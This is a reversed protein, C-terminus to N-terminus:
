VPREPKPHAVTRGTRMEQSFAIFTILSDGWVAGGSVKGQRPHVASQGFRAWHSPLGQRIGRSSTRADIEHCIAALSGNDASRLGKLHWRLPRQHRQRVHRALTSLLMGAETSEQTASQVLARVRSGSPGPPVAALKRLVVETSARLCITRIQRVTSGNQDASPRTTALPM